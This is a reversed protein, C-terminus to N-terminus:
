AYLHTQNLVLGGLELLDSTIDTRLELFEQSLEDFKFVHFRISHLKVSERECDAVLEILSHVEILVLDV